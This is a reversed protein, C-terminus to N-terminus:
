FVLTKMQETERYRPSCRVIKGDRYSPEESKRMM